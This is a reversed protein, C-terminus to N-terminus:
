RRRDLLGAEALTRLARTVTTRASGFEVALDAENPILDDPVWERALIRHRAEDQVSQWNRFTTANM